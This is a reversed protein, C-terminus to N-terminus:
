VQPPKIPWSPPQIQVDFCLIKENIFSLRKIKDEFCNQNGKLQNYFIDNSKLAATNLHESLKGVAYLSYVFLSKKQRHCQCSACSIHM